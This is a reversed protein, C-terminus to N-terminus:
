IVYASALVLNNDKYIQVLFREDHIDSAVVFANGSELEVDISYTNIYNDDKLDYIQVCKYRDDVMYVKSDHVWWARSRAHDYVVSNSSPLEPFLDGSSSSSNGALDSSSSSSSADLPDTDFEFVAQIDGNSSFKDVVSKIRQIDSYGKVFVSGDNFNVALSYPYYITNEVCVDVELTDRNIKAIRHNGSDCIWITGRVYNFKADNPYLLDGYRNGLTDIEVEAVIPLSYSQPYIVVCGDYLGDANLPYTALISGDLQNVDISKISENVTLDRSSIILNTDINVTKIKRSM